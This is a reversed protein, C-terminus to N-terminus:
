RDRSAVRWKNRAATTRTIGIHAPIRLWSIMDFGEGPPVAAQTLPAAGDM